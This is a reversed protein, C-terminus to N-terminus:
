FYAVWLYLAQAGKGEARAHVNGILCQTPSSNYSMTIIMYLFSNPSPETGPRRPLQFSHGLKLSNAFLPKGAWRHFCLKLNSVGSACPKWAMVTRRQHIVLSCSELGVRKPKQLTQCNVDSWTKSLTNRRQENKHHKDQLLRQSLQDWFMNIIKQGKEALAPVNREQEIWRVDAMTALRTILNDSEVRPLGSTTNTRNLQKQWAPSKNAGYPNQVLWCFLVLKTHKGRGCARM